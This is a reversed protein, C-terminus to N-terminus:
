RLESGVFWKVDNLDVVKECAVAEVFELYIKVGVLSGEIKM